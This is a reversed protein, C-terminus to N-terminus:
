GFTSYSLRIEKLGIQCLKREKKKNLKVYKLKVAQPLTCAEVKTTAEALSPIHHSRPFGFISFLRLGLSVECIRVEVM